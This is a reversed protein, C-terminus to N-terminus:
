TSAEEKENRRQAEACAAEESSYVNDLGVSSEHIGVYINETNWYSVRKEGFCLRLDVRSIKAERPSYIFIAKEGKGSCKPCNIKQHEGNSFTAEIKGTAGCFRCKRKEYKGEVLWVIDGPAYSGTAAKVMKQVFGKPLDTSDMYEYLAKLDKTDEEVRQKKNELELLEIELKRKRSEVDAYEAVAARAKESMIGRLKEIAESMIEDAETQNEFCSYDEFYGSM